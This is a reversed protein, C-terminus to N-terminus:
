KLFISSHLADIGEKRKGEFELSDRKKGGFAMLAIPTSIPEPAETQM